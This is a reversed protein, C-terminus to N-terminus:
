RARRRDVCPAVRGERERPVRRPSRWKESRLGRKDGGGEAALAGRVAVCEGSILLSWHSRGRKGEGGAILESVVM